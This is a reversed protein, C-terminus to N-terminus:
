HGPGARGEPQSKARGKIYGTLWSEVKNAPEPLAMGGGMQSTEEVQFSRIEGGKVKEIQKAFEQENKLEWSRYGWSQSERSTSPTM